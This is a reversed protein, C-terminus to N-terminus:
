SNYYPVFNFKLSCTTCKIVVVDDCFFRVTVTM